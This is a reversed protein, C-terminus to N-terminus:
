RSYTTANACIHGCHSVCMGSDVDNESLDGIDDDELHATQLTYYGYILFENGCLWKPIPHMVEYEMWSPDPRDWEALLKELGEQGGYELVKKKKPKVL